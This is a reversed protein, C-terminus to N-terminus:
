YAGFHLLRGKLKRQQHWAKMYEDNDVNMRIGLQDMLAETGGGM